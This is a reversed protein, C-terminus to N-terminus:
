SNLINEGFGEIGGNGFHYKESRYDYKEFPKFRYFYANGRLGDCVIGDIIFDNARL